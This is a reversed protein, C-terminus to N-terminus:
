QKMLPSKRRKQKALKTESIKLKDGARVGSVVEVWEGYMEGLKVKVKEDNERLMSVTTQKRSDVVSAPLAVAQKKEKVVFTLTVSMGIKIQFPLAKQEEPPPLSIQAEYVNVNNVLKSTEAIKELKGTLAVDPLIDFRIVVKQGLQVSPLDSEDLNARIIEGKSIKALSGSVKDSVDSKLYILKGSTPAFVPTLQIQNKWYELEKPNKNSHMDIFLNRSDSSVLAIKQRERVFDGEKVFLKELRGSVPSFVEVTNIPDVSGNVEMTKALDQLGVELIRYTEKKKSFANCSLTTICLFLLCIKRTV